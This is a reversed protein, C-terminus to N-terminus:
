FGRLAGVYAEPANQFVPIVQDIGTTRLSIMVATNPTAILVM